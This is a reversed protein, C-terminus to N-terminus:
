RLIRKVRRSVELPTALPVEAAAEEEGLEDDPAALGLRRRGRPEAAGAARKEELEVLTRLKELEAQVGRSYATGSWLARVENVADRTNQLIGILSHVPASGTGIILGTVLMDIWPWAMEIGLLQFMRLQTSFALFLGLVIAGLLSITRKWSRYSPSALHEHLRDKAQALKEEAEELAQLDGSSNLVDAQLREVEKRAWTLYDSAQEPLRSVSLIMSEYADFGMEVLREVAAAAAVLPALLLAIDATAVDENGQAYAVASVLFWLTLCLFTALILRKM